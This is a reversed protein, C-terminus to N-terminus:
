LLWSTYRSFGMQTPISMWLAGCAERLRDAMSRVVSLFESDRVGLESNWTGLGVTRVAMTGGQVYWMPAELGTTYLTYGHVYNPLQIAGWDSTSNRETGM